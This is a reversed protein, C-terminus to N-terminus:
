EHLRTLAWLKWLSTILGLFFGVVVAKCITLSGELRKNGYLYIQAARLRPWLLEMKFHVATLVSVPLQDFHQIFTVVPHKARFSIDWDGGCSDGGDHEPFTMSSPVSLFLLFLTSLYARFCTAIYHMFNVSAITWPCSRCLVLVMLMGAHISSPSM